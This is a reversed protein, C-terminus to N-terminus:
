WAAQWSASFHTSSITFDRPIQNSKETCGAQKPLSFSMLLPPSVFRRVGTAKVITDM